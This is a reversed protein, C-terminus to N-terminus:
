LGGKISKIFTMITEISLPKNTFAHAGLNMCEKRDSDTGHATVIIIPIEPNIKKIEIMVQTGYIDPLHLDLLVLSAANPSKKIWNVASTGDPCIDCILGRLSLRKSLMGAFKQEDDVILINIQKM